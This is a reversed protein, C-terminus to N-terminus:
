SSRASRQEGASVLEGAIMLAGSADPATGDAGLALARAPDCGLAPGGVMVSIKPNCSVSRIANILKPLTGIHTDMTATLGVLDFHKTGIARFLESQDPEILTEVIWGARQFCESLISTGLSHQDGPMTTFLATYGSNHWGDVPPAQLAIARVLQQLRWLGMTVDVFDCADNDWMQGLHRATPGILEIFLTEAAIGRSLYVLIAETLVDAEHTLVDQSFRGITVEDFMPGHNGHPTGSTGAMENDNSQVGHDLDGRLTSKEALRSEGFDAVSLDDRRVKLLRPIIEDQVLRSVDDNREISSVRSRGTTGGGWATTKKRNRGNRFLGTTSRILDIGFVSAM